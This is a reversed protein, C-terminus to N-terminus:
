FVLPQDASLKFRFTRNWGPLVKGEREYDCTIRRSTDLTTIKFCSRQIYAELRNEQVEKWLMDQLQEDRVSKPTRCIQNIKDALNYNAIYVPIVNFGAYIALAFIGLWIMSQVRGEGRESRTLM